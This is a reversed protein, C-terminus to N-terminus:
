GNAMPFTFRTLEDSSEIELKGCRGRAVESAIYLGLEQRCPDNSARSFFQFLLV